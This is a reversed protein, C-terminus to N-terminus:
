IARSGKLGGEENQFILVELPHRLSFHSEAFTRAVEIAGLSGVIGDYNGGQPVSDIRSGVLLTPLGPSSGDRRGSINGAADITPTLGAARMLGMV